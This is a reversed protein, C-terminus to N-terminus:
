TVQLRPLYIDVMRDGLINYLNRSRNMVESHVEEFLVGEVFKSMVFAYRAQTDRVNYFPERYLLLGLM